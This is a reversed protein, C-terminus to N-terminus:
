GDERERDAAADLERRQEVGDESWDIENQLDNLRDTVTDIEGLDVEGEIERWQEALGRLRTYVRRAKHREIGRHRAHTVAPGIRHRRTLRRGTM